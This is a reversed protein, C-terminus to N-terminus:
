EGHNLPYSGNTGAGALADRQTNGYRQQQEHVDSWEASDRDAHDFADANGDGNGHLKRGSGRHVDHSSGSTIAPSVGTGSGAARFAVMQM